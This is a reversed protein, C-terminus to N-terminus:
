NKEVERIQAALRNAQDQRVQEPSRIQKQLLALPDEHIFGRERLIRLQDAQTEQVAVPCNSFQWVQCPPTTFHLECDYHGVCDPQHWSYVPMCQGSSNCKCGTVAYSTSSDVPPTSSRDAKLTLVERQPTLKTAFSSDVRDAVHGDLLVISSVEVGGIPNAPQTTGIPTAVDACTATATLKAAFPTSDVTPMAIQRVLTRTEGTKVETFTVQVRLRLDAHFTGGYENERQFTLRTVPQQGALTATVKWAGCSNRVLKTGLLNIARARLRTVAVGQKNFIADDMREVVTDTTGLIDAPETRLPVGEFEVAGRFPASGVCFFDSPIPQEAFSYRTAGGGLTQWNDFGAAVREFGGAFAAGAVLLALSVALLCISVRARKLM